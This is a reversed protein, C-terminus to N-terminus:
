VRRAYLTVLRLIIKYLIIKTKWFLLKVKFLTVFEFYCKNAAALRNKIKMNSNTNNKVDVWLYKIDDM